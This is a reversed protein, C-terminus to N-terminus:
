LMAGVVNWGTMLSLWSPARSNTRIRQPSIRKKAFNSAATLLTIVILALASVTCLFLVQHVGSWLRRQRTGGIAEVFPLPQIRLLLLWVGEGHLIVRWKANVPCHSAQFSGSPTSKLREADHGCLGVLQHGRHMGAHWDDEM